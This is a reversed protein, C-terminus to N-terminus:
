RDRYLTHQWGTVVSVLMIAKPGTEFDHWSNTARAVHWGRRNAARNRSLVPAALPVPRNHPIHREGVGGILFVAELGAAPRFLRFPARRELAMCFHWKPASVRRWVRM